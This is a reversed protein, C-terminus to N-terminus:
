RRWGSGNGREYAEIARVVERGTEAPNATAPVNINYTSSYVKSGGGGAVMAPAMQPRVTAGYWSAAQDLIGLSRRPDGNRPVFAEQGTEPEAFAYLPRAGASFVSAKSLLGDRAHIPTVGGWRMGTSYGQGSHFTGAYSTTMVAKIDIRRDISAIRAKLAAIQADAQTTNAKVETNWKKPISLVSNVYAWAATESLGYQRAQNYLATRGENIKGNAKEVSGTQEFVAQASTKATTAIKDLAESYKRGRETGLNISGVKKDFVTRADDVAGQFAREAENANLQVGNLIQLADVLDLAKRAATGAASGVGGLGTALEQSKGGAGEQATILAYFFPLDGTLWAGVKEGAAYLESLGVVLATTGRIGWEVAEFLIGLARAGEDAHPALDAFSDGIADGIERLGDAISDIVPGAEEIAKTLGPMVNEAGDLLGDLLPDLYQSAASFARTFAPELKLARNRITDIADLTEPVFAMSARGLMESLDDGLRTGAAKVQPDKAALALGGLVGGVGAAGVIAGGVATGVLTVLGAAIPAGIALVAPNMGAMPARALLPGLKAAFSVSVQGALDAGMDGASGVDILRRLSVQERQKGQELGLQKTLKAREAADSTRAIERALDRIGRTTDAIQGDLRRADAALDSLGDGLRETSESAKEGARGADDVADALKETANEADRAGRVYRAAELLLDVKVTRAM